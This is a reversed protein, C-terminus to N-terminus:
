PFFPKQIQNNAIKEQWKVILPVKYFKCIKSLHARQKMCYQTWDEATKISDVEFQCLEKIDKINLYFQSIDQFSDWCITGHYHVNQSKTSLETYMKVSAHFYPLIRTLRDYNSSLAMERDQIPSITIAFTMHPSLLELAPFKSQNDFGKLLQQKLVNM